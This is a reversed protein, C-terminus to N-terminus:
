LAAFPVIEHEAPVALEQAKRWGAGDLFLICYRRPFQAATNALFPSMLATDVWPLILSAMRGDAPCVAVYAYIFERVLQSGVAPRLLM